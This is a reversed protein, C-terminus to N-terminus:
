TKRPTSFVSSGHLADDPTEDTITRASRLLTNPIRPRAAHSSEPPPPLTPVDCQFCQVRGDSFGVYLDSADVALCTILPRKTSVMEALKVDWSGLGVDLTGCLIRSEDLHIWNACESLGDVVQLAEGNTTDWIRLCNDSGGSIVCGAM